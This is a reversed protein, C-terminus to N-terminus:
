NAVITYHSFPFTFLEPQADPASGPLHLLLTLTIPFTMQKGLQVELTKGDESLKLPVRDLNPPQGIEVFGGSDKMADVSLPQTFADYVYVRFTAPPVLVGELHHINDLSMFFTGGHKPRHDLHAMGATAQGASSFYYRLGGAIVAVAAILLGIVPLWNRRRVGM